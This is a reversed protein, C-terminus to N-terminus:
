KNDFPNAPEFDKAAVNNGLKDWLEQGILHKCLQEELNLDNLLPGEAQYWITQILDKTAKRQEPDAIASDIVTLVRGLKHKSLEFERDGRLNVYKQLAKRVVSKEVTSDSM